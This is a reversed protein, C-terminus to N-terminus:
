ASRYRPSRRRKHDRMDAVNWRQRQPVLRDECLRRPCIDLHQVLPPDVLECFGTASTPEATWQTAVSQRLTRQVAGEAVAAFGDIEQRVSTFDLPWERGDPEERVGVPGVYIHDHFRALERDGALVHAVRTVFVRGPLFLGIREGGPTRTVPACELLIFREFYGVFGEYSADWARIAADTIDTRGTDEALAFLLGLTRPTELYFEITGPPPVEGRDPDFLPAVESVTPGNRAM